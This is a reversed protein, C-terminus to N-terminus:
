NYWAALEPNVKKLIERNKAIKELNDKLDISRGDAKRAIGSCFDEYMIIVDEAGKKYWYHRSACFGVLAGSLLAAAFSAMTILSTAAKNM